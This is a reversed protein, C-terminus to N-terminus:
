PFYVLTIEKETENGAKDSAVLKIQNEGENLSYTTSFNGESGVIVLRNNLTLSVGPETKGQITISKEQEGYFTAGDEPSSITLEPPEEDFLVYHKESPSSQNGAKDIAIAYITNRGEELRLKETIFKSDSDSIVTTINKGNLYIEM